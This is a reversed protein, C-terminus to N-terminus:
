RLREVFNIKGGQGARRRLLYAYGKGVFLRAPYSVLPKRLIVFASMLLYYGWKEIVLM